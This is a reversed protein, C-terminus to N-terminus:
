KRGIPDNEEPTPTRGQEIPPVASQNSVQLQNQVQTVGDLDSALKGLNQKEQDSGVKGHLTVIGNTAAVTIDLMMNDAVVGGQAGTSGTSLGVLVRQALDRDKPTAGIFKKAASGKQSRPATGESPVIQTTLNTGTQHFRKQEAPAANPAVSPKEQPDSAFTAFSLTITIGALLQQAFRM